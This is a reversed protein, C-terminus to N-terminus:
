RRGALTIAWRGPRQRARSRGNRASAMRPRTRADRARCAGAARSYCRPASHRRRVPTRGARAGWQRPRTNGRARGAVLHVRRARSQGSLDDLAQALDSARRSSIARSSPSAPAFISSAHRWRRNGLNRFLREAEDLYARAAAGDGLRWTARGLTFACTAAFFDTRERTFLQYNPETVEIARAPEDLVLYVEGISNWTLGRAWDREGVERSIAISQEYIPWRRKRGAREYYLDGLNLFASSRAPRNDTERHLALCEEYLTQAREYDHLEAIPNALNM